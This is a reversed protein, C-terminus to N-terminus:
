QIPGFTFWFLIEYNLKTYNKVFFICVNTFMLLEIIEDLLFPLLIDQCDANLFLQSHVIDSMTNLKQKVLVSPPLNSILEALLLSSYFNLITSTIDFLLEVIVIYRLQTPSFVAIVDSISLSVCELCACLLNENDISYNNRCMLNSLLKFIENMSKEFTHDDRMLRYIYLLCIYM